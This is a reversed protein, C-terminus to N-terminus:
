KKKRFVFLENQKKVITGFFDRLGAYDEATYNAVALRLRCQLIITNGNRQVIYEFMGDEDNYMIRERRPLEEVEYGAPIDISAFYQENMAHPMEVPYKREASKFPNDKLVETLMPNFYLLSDSNNMKLEFDYSITLPKEIDNAPEALM